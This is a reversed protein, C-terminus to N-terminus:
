DADARALRRGVIGVELLYSAFVDAKLDSGVQSVHRGDPMAEPGTDMVAAFDFLEVGTSAAVGALVRNHEAVARCPLPDWDPAVAMTALVVDAGFSRAVAIMSRTNRAFIRTPSHELNALSLREDPHRVYDAVVPVPLLHLGGVALAVVMSRRRLWAVAGAALPRRPPWSPPAAWSQRYNAYDPALDGAARAWGDNLGHQIVVLAPSIEAVLLELRILNEASTAGPLGANVVEIRRGRLEAALEQNLRTELRATFIRHNDPIGITYTTSGGLFVIRVAMPDPTLERRDRLGLRNHGPGEATALGPALSYLAYHHRRYLGSEVGIGGAAPSLAARVGAPAGPFWWRLGIELIALALLLPALAFATRHRGWRVIVMVVCAAALLLLLGAAIEGSTGVVVAGSGDLVLSLLTAVGTILFVARRGTRGGPVLLRGDDRRRM